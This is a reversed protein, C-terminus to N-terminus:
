YSGPKSVDSDEFTELCIRSGLVCSGVNRKTMNFIKGVMAGSRIWVRGDITVLVEFFSCAKKKKKRWFM